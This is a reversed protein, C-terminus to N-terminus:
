GAKKHGLKAIMLEITYVAGRFKKDKAAREEDKARAAELKPLLSADGLRDLGFLVVNRLTMDDTDAYEVLQQKATDAAESMQALRYGALLAVAPKDSGLKKGWCVPDNTCERIAAIKAEVEGYNQTWEAYGKILGDYGRKENDPAKAQEAKTEADWKALTKKIDEVQKALADLAKTDTGDMLNATNLAIQVRFGNSVPDRPHPEDALLKMMGPIAKPSGLFGIQQVAALKHELALEKDGAIKLLPEVARDDGITALANAISIVKQVGAMVFARAKDPNQQVSPPMEEFNALAALLPEVADKANLDGLLEAAKAEILGGKDFKFKRARAEVVRNKRELTQILLPIAAPGVRNIALRCQPVANRGLNDDLWLCRVLGPIAKESKLKGLAEAALGALAIPQIDPDAELVPILAPIASEKPYQALIQLAGYKIEKPTGPDAVVAQATDAAEPVDWELLTTAALQGAKPEDKDKLSEILTPAAAKDGIQALSAIIEYRHRDDKYAEMLPQVADKAKMEGLKRIAERRNETGLQEIWYASSTPDAQKCATVGLTLGLALTLLRLMRQM